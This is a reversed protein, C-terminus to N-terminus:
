GCDRPPRFESALDFYQCLDTFANPGRALILFEGLPGVDDHAGPQLRILLISTPEISVISFVSAGEVRDDEIGTAEGYPVIRESPFEFGRASSLTYKLGNVTATAPRSGSQDGFLVSAGAASAVLLLVALAAPAASPLRAFHVPWRRRPATMASAVVMNPDRPRVTSSVLARLRTAVLEDASGLKDDM